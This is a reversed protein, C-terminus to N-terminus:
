FSPIWGSIWSNSWAKSMMHIYTMLLFIMGDLDLSPSWKTFDCGADRGCLHYKEDWGMHALSRIGRLRNCKQIELWDTSCWSSWKFRLRAEWKCSRRSRAMFKFNKFIGGVDKDDLKHDRHKSHWLDTQHISRQTGPPTIPQHSTYNPHNSTITQVHQKHKTQAKINTPRTHNAPREKTFMWSNSYLSILKESNTRIIKM